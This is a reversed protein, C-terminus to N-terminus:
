DESEASYLEALYASAYDILQKIQETSSVTGITVIVIGSNRWVLHLKLEGASKASSMFVIETREIGAVAARIAARQPETLATV